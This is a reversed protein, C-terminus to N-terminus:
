KALVVTGNYTFDGARLQYIYIGGRGISGSEDRGNWVLMSTGRQEMEAVRAGTIDYVRAEVARGEPNTYTVIFEDFVGDGNPTFIKAPTVDLVSFQSPMLVQQVRYRGTRDTEVTLTKALSSVEGGVKIWRVGDFFFVALDSPGFTVGPRFLSSGLAGPPLQFIFRGAGGRLILGSVPKGNSSNFAQLEYDMFVKGGEGEPRRKWLLVVRSDALQQFSSAALEASARFDKAVVAYSLPTTTRVWVSSEGERGETDLTRVYYYRPADAGGTPDTYALPSAVPVFTQLTGASTVGTSKYVRYGSIPATAGTVDYVVGQWAMTFTGDTQLGGQPVVSPLPEGGTLLPPLLAFTLDTFSTELLAANRAKVQVYYTTKSTLGSFNFTTATIWGSSSFVPIRSANSSVEVWYETVPNNSGTVWNATLATPSVGTLASAGPAYARTLVEGLNSLGSFVPIEDGTYVRAFYTANGTLAQSFLTSYTKGHTSGPTATTSISEVFTGVSFVHGTDSSYDVRFIGPSINGVAGDDGPSTWSLSIQGGANSVLTLNTIDGPAIAFTHTSNNVTNSLEAQAKAEDLAEVMFYYTPGPVLNGVTRVELIGPAAPPTSVALTAANFIPQDTLPFTTYKMLYSTATGVSGDKGPATFSLRAVGETSATVAVLDTVPGPQHNINLYGGFLINNIAGFTSTTLSFSQEGAFELICPGGACLSGSGATSHGGVGSQGARQLREGAAFGLSSVAFGLLAAGVWKAAAAKRVKLFGAISCSPMPIVTIVRSTPLGALGLLVTGTSNITSEPAIYEMTGPASSFLSPSRGMESSTNVKALPAFILRFFPIARKLSLSLTPPASTMKPSLPSLVRKPAKVRSARPKAKSGILLSSLGM